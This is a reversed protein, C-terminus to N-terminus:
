DSPKFKSAIDAIGAELEQATPEDLAVCQSRLQEMTQMSLKVGARLRKIHASIRKTHEVYLNRVVLANRELEAIEDKAARIIEEIEATTTEVEKVPIEIVNESRIAPPAYALAGAVTRDIAAPLVAITPLRPETKTM